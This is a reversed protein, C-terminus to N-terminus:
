AREILAAYCGRRAYHAHIYAVDPNALFREIMAKAEAGEVVEAEVMMHRADFGRLSLTRRALAPPVVDFGEFRAGRERVFIPGQQRYPTDAPQHDYSLLLVAEGIEADDLTIRCPAAPKETVRVREVGKEALGEDSLAHLDAFLAPDLGSIRFGM